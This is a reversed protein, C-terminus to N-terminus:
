TRASGACFLRSREIGRPVRVCRICAPRIVRQEPLRTGADARNLWIAQEGDSRSASGIPPLASGTRRPSNCSNPDSRAFPSHGRLRRAASFLSSQGGARGTQCRRPPRGGPWGVVCGRRISRRIIRWRRAVVIPRRRTSALMHAQQCGHRGTEESIRWPLTEFVMEIFIETTEEGSYVEVRVPV